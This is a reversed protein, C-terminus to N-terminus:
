LESRRSNRIVAMAIGVIGAILLMVHVERLLTRPLANYDGIIDPTPVPGGFSYIGMLLGIAIGTCVLLWGGFALLDGRFRARITAAVCAAAIADAGIPSLWTFEKNIFAGALLFTPLAAVGIAFLVAEWRVLFATVTRRGRRRNGPLESKPECAALLVLMPIAFIAMTGLRFLRQELSDTGVPNGGLNIAWQNGAPLCTLECVVGCALVFVATSVAIKWHKSAERSLHLFAGVSILLFSVRLATQMPGHSFVHDAPVSGNIAVGVAFTMMAAIVTIAVAIGLWVPLRRLVSRIDSKSTNQHIAEM